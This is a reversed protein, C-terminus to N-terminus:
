CKSSILFSYILQLDWCSSTFISLKAIIFVFLPIHIGNVFFPPHFTTLRCIHMALMLVIKLKGKFDCIYWTQNLLDRHNLISRSVFMIQFSELPSAGPRRKNPGYEMSGLAGPISGRLNFGPYAVASARVYYLVIVKMCLTTRIM